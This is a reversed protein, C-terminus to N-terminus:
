KKKEEPKLAEAMGALIGSAAAAFRLDSSCV